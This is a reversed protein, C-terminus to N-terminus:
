FIAPPTMEVFIGFRHFANMIHHETLSVECCRYTDVTVAGVVYRMSANYPHQNGLPALTAMSLNIVDICYTDMSVRKEILVILIHRHANVAMRCVRYLIWACHIVSVPDGLHSAVAVSILRNDPLVAKRDIDHVVIELIKMAYCELEVPHLFIPQVSRGLGHGNARVAVAGMIDAAGNAGIRRNYPGIQYLRALPAM